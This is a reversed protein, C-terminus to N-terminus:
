KNISASYQAQHQAALSSNVAGARLSSGQALGVPPRSLDTGLVKDQESRSIHSRQARMLPFTDKMSHNKLPSVHFYQPKIKLKQDDFLLILRTVKFGETKLKPVHNFFVLPLPGLCSCPARSLQEQPNQFLSEKASKKGSTPICRFELALLAGM